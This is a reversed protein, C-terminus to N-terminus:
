VNSKLWPTLVNAPRCTSGPEDPEAEQSTMLYSQLASLIVAFAQAVNAYRRDRDRKLRITVRIRTRTLNTVRADDGYLPVNQESITLEVTFPVKHDSRRRGNREAEMDIQLNIRDGKISVVEAHHDSVFGRLKQIAMNLPVAAVLVRDLFLEDDCDQPAAPQECPADHGEDLGPGLQVVMNRGMRKAEFLARDSRRLMSDPTDGSQIETVGFSATITHGSLAPHPTDDLTTRLQEARRAAAANTCDACLIVFEEGGYRAVLDGARCDAKLLRGFVKLVEDGAQHGYTDNIFKFHDIDCMIMSCPLRSEGHAQIFQPYTRDFESRNAVQTLPDKTAREHLTQCREELTAEPSVDHLLMAAGHLTGDAGIVPLLHADVLIFRRERGTVTLRRLSQAGSAMCRAVPCEATSVRKSQEDRLDVLSPAWMQGVVSLGAVGTLREAGRNWQLIHMDHDVFIVADHMNDLLKQRFLNEATVVRDPATTGLNRWFRNSQEPQLSQLWHGSVQGHLQVTIRLESFSKVLEPDFQTGAKKFLENLARERSMAQRYTQDSTMSDFADVVALMRAGRPINMGSLPYNPRSGDFWGASHRIIDVISGAPCCSALIDLGSVRYRDMLLAEDEALRGPKHLLADPVGIKGIDHLLAAIELEDRAEPELEMAFAWSSCGLAVRLAHAATAPHKHRIATFLGSVAGLRVEILRSEQVPGVSLKTPPSALSFALPDDPAISQEM